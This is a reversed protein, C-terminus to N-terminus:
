LVENGDFIGTLDLYRIGAAALERKMRPYVAAHQARARANDRVAPLYSINPSGVHANPQLVPLFKGGNSEVIFKAMLWDQALCRAILDAKAEDTDCDYLYHDPESGNVLKSLIEQLPAFIQVSRPVDPAHMAVIAAIRGEAMSSYFTSGRRCKFTVDNYGDYFVVQSPRGGELYLRMLANLNQHAVYGLQGLNFTRKGSLKELRAPITGGDPSGDGWVASGGFVWVQAETATSGAGSSHRRYGNEDITIKKGRFPRHQWVTFDRYVSRVRAFESFLQRAWIHGAYVPLEHRRDHRPTRAVADVSNRLYVRLDLAAPVAIVFLSLLFGVLAVNIAAVKLLQKM